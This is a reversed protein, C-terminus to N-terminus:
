NMSWSKSKTGSDGALTVKVAPTSQSLVQAWSGGQKGMLTGEAARGRGQPPRWGPVLAPPHADPLSFHGGQPATQSAPTGSLSLVCLSCLSQPRHAESPRPHSLRSPLETRAESLPSCSDPRPGHTQNWSPFDGPQQKQFAKARKARARRKERPHDLPGAM